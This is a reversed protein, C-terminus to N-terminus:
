FHEGNEFYYQKELDVFQVCNDAYGKNKFFANFLDAVAQCTQAERKFWYINVFPYGGTANGESYFTTHLHELTIHDISCKVIESFPKILKQSIEKVEEEKVGKIIIHPM